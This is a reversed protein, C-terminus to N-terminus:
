YRARGPLPNNASMRLRANFRLHNEYRAEPLLLKTPRPMLGRAAVRLATTEGLVVYKMELAVIPVVEM